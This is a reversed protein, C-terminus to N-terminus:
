SYDGLPYVDATNTVNNNSSYVVKVYRFKQGLRIVKVVTTATTLTFTSSVYTEPTTADSYVLNFWSSNDLSGQISYTCTPSDGVTTTVRVFVRQRVDLGSIGDNLFDFTDSSGDGTQADSILHNLGYNELAPTIGAQQLKFVTEAIQGSLYRQADADMVMYETYKIRLTDVMETDNGAEDFLRAGGQGRVPLGTENFIAAM